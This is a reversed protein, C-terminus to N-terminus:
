RGRGKKPMLALAILLVALIGVSVIVWPLLSRAPSGSEKGTVDTMPPQETGQDATSPADVHGDTTNKDEIQGDEAPPMLDRGRRDTSEDSRHPATSRDPLIGDEVQTATMTDMTRRARHARRPLPARDAGRRGNGIIGDDDTVIGNERRIVLGAVPRRVDHRRATGQTGSQAAAAPSIIFTLMLLVLVLAIVSTPSPKNPPRYMMHEAEKRQL